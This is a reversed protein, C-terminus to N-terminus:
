TFSRSAWKVYAKKLFALVKADGRMSDPSNSSGAIRTLPLAHEPHKLCKPSRRPLSGQTRLTGSRKIATFTRLTSSSKTKRIEGRQFSKTAKDAYAEAEAFEGDIFQPLSRDKKATERNERIQNLFAILRGEEPTLNAVRDRLFEAFMASVSDGLQEQAQEFLPVDADKVYITKNPMLCTYTYTYTCHLRLM